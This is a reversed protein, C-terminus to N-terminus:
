RLFLCMLKAWSVERSSAKVNGQMLPATMPTKGLFLELVDESSVGITAEHSLPETEKVGGAENVKYRNLKM